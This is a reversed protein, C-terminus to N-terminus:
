PAIIREIRDRLRCYRHFAENNRVAMSVARHSGVLVCLQKARTVATYLLNRQLLIYHHTMMVIVVAKFECGQSKHISICYAHVLEDLDKLEYRVTQGDFEVALESEDICDVVYGIDGNFVGRDYNNRIQMVRDGVCFSVEGRVLKKGGADLASRLARNLNQTGLPGRHMPSLVQIDYVPDFGFRRPLRTKVLEVVTAVCRDPDEEPIFFFNGDKDNAFAPVTGRIIDHAALVIRSQAAQRFITTLEIHPIRGSAIMDALVCGPGVSPLQNSDGVFLVIADRKLACLLSRMLLIDVMSVEDVVLVSAEIPRDANRGFNFRGGGPKFELLRHITSAKIGAISGMRQAARGTPAALAIGINHERFFSVIMQLTTTKGTGPGGTLLAVSHMCMLRAADLQRPAADWGSRRCYVALWEDMFKPDYSAVVTNPAAAKRALLKAVTTEAEFLAPLFIREEESIFTNEAICHDLSYLVLEGGVGLLATAKEVLQTRPLYTHGDAQAENMVHLLGARIRKFSDHTFGLKQAIGDAKVFGIGWVDDVLCYPNGSIRERASLGYTKYIKHALNVSIASEQLFVMLDRIHKQAQWAERISACIKKGIGNVELLRGPEKDLIDLTELGFAAIIKKARVSGISAILGSGLLAEIGELTTPRMIEFSKVAFQPGFRKHQEWEGSVRLAQGKEIATLVGVCVITDPRGDAKFRVVSFGNDENRFTIEIVAGEITTM